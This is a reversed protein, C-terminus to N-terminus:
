YTEVYESESRTEGRRLLAYLVAAVLTEDGGAAEIAAVQTSDFAGRVAREALGALTRVPVRCPPTLPAHASLTMDVSRLGLLNWFHSLFGAEGHWCVADRNGVNVGRGGVRTYNITVPLVPAQVGHAALFLLPKFALVRAGNTSTGEPFCIVNGGEALLAGMRKACRVGEWVKGREVYLTGGLSALWGVLPWGRVESKAVFQAPFYAALALIDLYSQHNAVILAADPLSPSPSLSPAPSNKYHPSRTFRVRVGLIALLGRAWLRTIWRFVRRRAHARGLAFSVVAAGALFALMLAACPALRCLRRLLATM